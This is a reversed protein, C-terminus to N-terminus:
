SKVGDVIVFYNNIGDSEYKFFRREIIVFLKGQVEISPKYDITLAKFDEKTINKFGFFVPADDKKKTYLVLLYKEKM